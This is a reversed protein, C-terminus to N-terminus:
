TSSAQRSSSTVASAPPRYRCRQLALADTIRQLPQTETGLGGPAAAADVFTTATALGMPDGHDFHEAAASASVIAITPHLPDNEPVHCISLQPEPAMDVILLDTAALLDDPPLLDSSEMLLDDAAAILDNAAALDPPAGGLDHTTALLDSSETLLDDATGQSLDPGAGAGRENCGAAVLVLIPLCASAALTRRWARDRIM